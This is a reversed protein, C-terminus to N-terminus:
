CDIEWNQVIGPAPMVSALLAFNWVGIFLACCFFWQWESALPWGFWLEFITQNKEIEGFHFGDLAEPGRVGEEHLLVELRDGRGGVLLVASVLLCLVDEPVQAFAPPAKRRWLFAFELSHGLLIPGTPQPFRALLALGAARWSLLLLLHGLRLVVALDRHRITFLLGRCWNEDKSSTLGM